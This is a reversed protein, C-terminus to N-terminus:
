LKRTPKAVEAAAAPALTAVIAFVVRCVDISVKNVYMRVAL